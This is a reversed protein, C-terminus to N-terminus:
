SFAPVFLIEMLKFMGSSVSVLVFSATAKVLPGRFKAISSENLSVLAGPNLYIQMEVTQIIRLSKKPTSL